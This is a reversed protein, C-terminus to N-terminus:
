FLRQLMYLYKKLIKLFFHNIKAEGYLGLMWLGWLTLNAAFIFNIGGWQKMCQYIFLVNWYQYMCILYLMIVTVM